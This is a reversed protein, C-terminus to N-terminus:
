RQRCLLQACLPQGIAQSHLGVHLTPADINYSIPLKAAIEIPSLKAGPGAKAIIDFVGLDIACKLSMSLASSSVLQMAYSFNEEELELSSAM